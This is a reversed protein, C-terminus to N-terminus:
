PERRGAVLDVVGPGPHFPEKNRLMWYIYDPVIGRLSM